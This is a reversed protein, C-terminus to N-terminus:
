LANGGFPTTRCSLGESVLASCVRAVDTASVVPGAVLTFGREPVAPNQELIYRPELNALAAAHREQLLNWTLRLSEISSGSALLIALAPPQEPVQRADTVVATGFDVPAAPPRSVKNASPNASPRSLEPAVAPKLATRVVAPRPPAREPPPPVTISGTTINSTGPPITGQPDAPAADAIREPQPTMKAPAEHLRSALIQQTTVYKTEIGTAPDPTDAVEHSQPDAATDPAAVATAPQPKEEFSETRVAAAMRPEAGAESPSAIGPHGADFVPSDIGSMVASLYLLSAIGVVAYGAIYPTPLGVPILSPNHPEESSM